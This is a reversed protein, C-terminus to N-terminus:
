GRYLAETPVAAGVVIALNTNSRGSPTTSWFEFQLTGPEMVPYPAPLLYPGDPNSLFVSDPIPTNFWRYSLGLDTVQMTFNQVVQHYFGYVFSGAPLELVFVEYSQPAVTNQSLNGGSPAVYFRPVYCRSHNIGALLAVTNPNFEPYWDEYSPRLQQPNLM